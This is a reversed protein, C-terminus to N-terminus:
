FESDTVGLKKWYIVNPYDITYQLINKMFKLLFFKEFFDGTFRRLHIVGYVHGLAPFQTQDTTRYLIGSSRYPKIIFMNHLAVNTVHM